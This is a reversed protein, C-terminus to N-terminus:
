NGQWKEILNAISEQMKMSQSLMSQAAQEIINLRSVELMEKAIDADSIRSEANTINLSYNQVNNGIHQLANDYAGFKSRQTSIIKFANDIKVLSQEASERDRLSLNNLGLKVARADFLEVEFDHGQNPGVQLTITPMEDKEYGVGSDGVIDDAFAGLKDGFNTNMDIFKGGTPTILKDYQDKIETRDDSVVTLKINNAKLDDAVDNIDFSSLKDGAASNDHVIADTVMIIQKTADGRLPYSLAGNAPDAIGELGSEPIDGGGDIAISELYKKFDDVSNTIPYKKIDQDPGTSHIEGYTVLGINVDVGQTTIKSIFADINNKVDEIKPGM